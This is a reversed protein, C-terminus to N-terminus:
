FTFHPATVTCPGYVWGDIVGCELDREFCSPVTLCTEVSGVCFGGIALLEGNHAAAACDASERARCRNEAAFCWGFDRCQDSARCADDNTVWCRGNVLSCAGARKCPSDSAPSACNGGCCADASTLQPPVCEGDVFECHGHDFCPSVLLPGHAELCDAVDTAQWTCYGDRAHCTGMYTCNDSFMCDDGAAICFGGPGVSCAGLETCEFLEICSPQPAATALVVLLIGVFM